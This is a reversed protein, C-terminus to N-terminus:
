RRVFWVVKDIKALWGETSMGFCTWTIRAKLTGGSAFRSANTAITVIRTSDVSTPTSSDVSEWHGTTYNFLQIHLLVNQLPAGNIHSELEFRISNPDTCPTSEEFDVQVCTPPDQAPNPDEVLILRQDDSFEVSEITGSYHSGQVITYTSPSVDAGYKLTGYDFGTGAPITRGAVAVNRCADIAIAAGQDDSGLDYREVWKQKGDAFKYKLTVYDSLASSSKASRGTIYVNGLADLVMGSPIDDGQKANYDKSWVEVGAPNYKITTIDIRKVGDKDSQGTVFFDGTPAHVKVDVAMDNLPGDYRYPNDLSFYNNKDLRFTGYNYALNPISTLSTYGTVYVHTTDIDLATAVSFGQRPNPWLREQEVLPSGALKLMLYQATPAEDATAPHYKTGCVYIKGGADVAIDVGEERKGPDNGYHFGGQWLAAETLDSANLKYVSLDGDDGTGATFAKSYGTFYVYSSDVAIALAADWANLPGVTTNFTATAIPLGTVANFKSVVADTHGGTRTAKGCVYVFQEDPSLVIGTPVDDLNDPINVFRSWAPEVASGNWRYKIVRIDKGSVLNTEFGAVYVNGSSDTAVAKAEDALNDTYNYTIDWFRPNTQAQANASPLLVLSLMLLAVIVAKDNAALGRAKSRKKLLFMSVGGLTLVLASTPEPVPVYTLQFGNVVMGDNGGSPPQTISVDLSGNTVIVDHITHTIGEILANGPMPGTVIQPNTTLSGPVVVPTPMVSGWPTAAYTYVRYQGPLLNRFEHVLTGGPISQAVDTFDNLLLAYDGTNSFNAYGGGSIAVYNIRRTVTAGTLAGTIDRLPIAYNVSVVDVGVWAGPQNAAAAFSASPLGFGLSPPGSHDVDINFAQARAPPGLGFLLACLVIPKFGTAM